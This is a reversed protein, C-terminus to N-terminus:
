VIEIRCIELVVQPRLRAARGGDVDDDAGHIVEESELHLKLQAKEDIVFDFHINHTKERHCSELWIPRSFSSRSRWFSMTTMNSESNSPLLAKLIFFRNGDKKQEKGFVTTKMGEPFTTFPVMARWITSMSTSDELLTSIIRLNKSMNRLSFSM